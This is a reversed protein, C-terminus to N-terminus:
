PKLDFDLENDGAKLDAKLESNKHYKEPLIEETIAVQEGM